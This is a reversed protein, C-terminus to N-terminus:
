NEWQNFFKYVYKLHSTHDDKVWDINQLFLEKLIILESNKDFWECILILKKGEAFERLVWHSM